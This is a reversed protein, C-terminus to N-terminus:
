RILTVDGRYVRETGDFHEMVIVYVYVGTPAPRDGIRGDWGEELGIRIDKDRYVQMGWRDFVQFSRIWEGSRSGPVMFYDNNGDANPSFANPIFFECYDRHVDVTTSLTFTCGNEHLIEVQYRSFDSPRSNMIPCDDCFMEETSQWQIAEAPPDAVINFQVEDGFCVLQHANIFDGDVFLKASYQEVPIFIATTDRCGKVDVAVVQYQASAVPEFDFFFCTDCPLTESSTWYSEAIYNNPDISLSLNEGACLRYEEDLFNAEALIGVELGPVQASRRKMCTKKDTVKVKFSAAEFSAITPGEQGTEWQYRYGGNGGLAQLSIRGDSGNYCSVSDAIAQLEIPAPAPIVLSRTAVCEKRDQVTVEIKRSWYCVVRIRTRDSKRSQSDARLSLARIGIKPLPSVM